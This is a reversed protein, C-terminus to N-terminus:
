ESSIRIRVVDNGIVGLEQLQGEQLGMRTKIQRVEPSNARVCNYDIAV